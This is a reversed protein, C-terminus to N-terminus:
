ATPELAEALERHIELVDHLGTSTIPLLVARHAAVLRIVTGHEAGRKHAEILEALGPSGLFTVATLDVVVMGGTELRSQADHLHDELLRATELDVEGAVHVVIAAGSNECWVRLVDAHEDDSQAGAEHGPIPRAAM